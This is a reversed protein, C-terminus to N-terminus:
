RWLEGIPRDSDAKEYEEDNECSPGSCRSIVGDHKSVYYNISQAYKAKKIDLIAQAIIAVICVVSVCVFLSILIIAKETM